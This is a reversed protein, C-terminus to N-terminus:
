IKFYVEVRRNLARGKPTTNLFKPKSEGFSGTQVRNPDIGQSIMYKRLSETRKQSLLQNFEDEGTADTHGELVISSGPNAKLLAVIENLLPYLNPQISAENLLFHVDVLSTLGERSTVVNPNSNNNQNNGNGQGNNNGNQGVNNNGNQGGNNGNQSGNNANQNNGNQGGINGIQNNGNQSVNNNANQGGNNNGNQSGNNANQNNGNQGGINGIQNNGNQSGSNNGNQGSINESQNNGNQSGNNNGNQNNGNQGGINGIQNNGNQSVNNNANQGGNNNGNQSGNNANQNNGNQGGINGIQNNGNQSGSNNGNQSVNNNANQGGNNNGNQSGNNANQNNGNQSGSNNGNQGSINESQNNGNQSGNNANQNNGNGSGQINNNNPLSDSGNQYTGTSNGISNNTIVRDKENNKIAMLLDQPCGENEFNGPIDICKDILDSVGDGDSDINKLSVGRRSVINGIPTDKEDDMFNAIGDGDDDRINSQLQKNLSDLNKNEDELYTMDPFCPTFAWDMHSGYKGLYFNLGITGNAYFGDFGRNFVSNYMDWTYQQYIHWVFSVDTTVSFRENVKFQPALGFMFNVMKDTEPNVKSWLWSMGGGTHFLLSTKDSFNEFQMLRGIDLVFQVSTRAYKSTFPKSTGTNNWIGIKDHSIRDFGVDWKLGFKNNFMFRTGASIHYLGITNSWYEPSYPKVANSVGPNLEISWRNNYGQSFLLSTTFVLLIITLVTQRMVM